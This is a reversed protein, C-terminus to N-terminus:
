RRKVTFSGRGELHGTKKATAGITYGNAGRKPYIWTSRFLGQSDSVGRSPVCQGFGVNLQVAAGAAPRGGASAAVVIQTTKGPRVSAPAASIRLHLPAPPRPRTSQAKIMVDSRGEKFGAKRVSVGIQIDFAVSPHEWETHFTGNSGTRASLATTRSTSFKGAGSNLVLDAGSVPRKDEHSYVTVAVTARGGVPIPNPNASIRIELNKLPLTKRAVTEQISRSRYGTRSVEATIRYSTSGRAPMRWRTKVAGQGDTKAFLSGSNSGVFQGAQASIRVDCGPLPRQDTGRAVVVINALEGAVVNKPQVQIVANLQPDPPRSQIRVVQQQQAKIYGPKTCEAVVTVQTATKISPATWQAQVNGSSDTQSNLSNTKSSSFQGSTSRLQIHAGAIPQRSGDLACATITSQASEAVTNPIVSLELVIDEPERLCTAVITCYGPKYGKKEVAFRLSYEDSGRTPYTWRVLYAGSSDTTGSAFSQMIGTGDGTSFEATVAAGSLPLNNAKASVRFLVDEGPSVNTVDGEVEASIQPYTAPDKELFPVLFSAIGAVAALVFITAITRKLLKKGSHPSPTQGKATAQNM